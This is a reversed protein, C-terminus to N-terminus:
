GCAMRKWRSAGYGDHGPNSKRPVLGGAALWVSNAMGQSRSGRKQAQDIEDKMRMLTAEGEMLFIARKGRCVLKCRKWSRIPTMKTLGYNNDDGRNSVFITQM